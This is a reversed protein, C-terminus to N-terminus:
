VLMSLPCIGLCDISQPKSSMVLHYQLLADRMMINWHPKFRNLTHCSKHVLVSSGSANERSGLKDLLSRALKVYNYGGSIDGLKATYSGLHVFVVPSVPSMGHDLSLQIIRQAVYPVSKPMIQAMGVM